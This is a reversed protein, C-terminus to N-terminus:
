GGGVLSVVDISDGPVLVTIDYQAKSIIQGNVAVAVRELHYGSDKLCDSLIQNDAAIETGNIRIM